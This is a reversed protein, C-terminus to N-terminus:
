FHSLVRKWYQSGPINFYKTPPRGQCFNLLKPIGELCFISMRALSRQWRQLRPLIADCPHNTFRLLSLSTSRFSSPVPTTDLTSTCRREAFTEKTQKNKLQNQGRTRRVSATNCGRRQGVASVAMPMSAVREGQAEPGGAELVSVSSNPTM